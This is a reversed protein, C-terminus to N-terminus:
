WNLIIKAVKYKMLSDSIKGEHWAAVTGSDMYYDIQGDIERGAEDLSEEKLTGNTMDAWLEWDVFEKFQSENHKITEEETLSIYCSPYDKGKYNITYKEIEM